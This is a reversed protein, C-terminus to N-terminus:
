DRLDEQTPKRLVATPRDSAASPSLPETGSPRRGPPPNDQGFIIAVGALSIVDGPYLVSQTTRQGNVFTGGTSNLDFLVFRGRIARVQAHYRSIRPDDIALHNDARRGINIVSGVLPFVKVGGVILFASQPLAGEPEAAPGVSPASRTAALSNETQFAGIRVDGPELGDDGRVQIVPSSTTGLGSESVVTKIINTLEDILEANDQWEDLAGPHVRLEYTYPIGGGPNEYDISSRVVSALQHVVLDETKSGPLLNVLRVEILAQLHRELEDLNWIKRMSTVQNPQKAARRRLQPV